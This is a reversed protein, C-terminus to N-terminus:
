LRCVQCQVVVVPPLIDNAKEASLSVDAVSVDAAHQWDQLERALEAVQPQCLSCCKVSECKGSLLKIGDRQHSPEWGAVAFGYLSNLGPPQLGFLNVARGKFNERCFGLNSFCRDKDDPQGQETGGFEDRHLLPWM